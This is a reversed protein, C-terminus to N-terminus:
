LFPELSYHHCTASEVSGGDGRHRPEVREGARGTRDGGGVVSPGSWIPALPNQHCTAGDAGELDGGFEGLAACCAHYYSLPSLPVDERLEGASDRGIVPDERSVSGQRTLSERCGLDVPLQLLDHDLGASTRLLVACRHGVRRQEGGPDGEVLLVQREHGLSSYRHTGPHFGDRIRGHREGVPM